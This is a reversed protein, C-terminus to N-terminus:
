NQALDLFRIVVELSPESLDANTAIVILAMVDVRQGVALMPARLPSLNRGCAGQDVVEIKGSEDEVMLVTREYARGCTRRDTITETRIATVAGTLRIERMNYRDPHALLTGIPIREYSVLPIRLPGVRSSRPLEDSMAGAQPCVLLTMLPILILLSAISHFSKM